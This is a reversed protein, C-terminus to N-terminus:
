IYWIENFEISQISSVVHVGVENARNEFAPSWRQFYRMHGPSLPPPPSFSSFFIFTAKLVLCFFFTKLFFSYMLNSSWSYNQSWWICYNLQMHCGIVALKLCQENVSCYINLYIWYINMNLSFIVDHIFKISVCHRDNM